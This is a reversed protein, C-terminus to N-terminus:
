WQSAFANLDDSYILRSGFAHSKGISTVCPSIRFKDSVICLGLDEEVDKLVLQWTSSVASKTKSGQGVCLKSAM